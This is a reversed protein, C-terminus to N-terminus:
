KANADRYLKQAADLRRMLENALRRVNPELLLNQQHGPIECIELSGDLVTKWGLFEDAVLGQLQKSARFLVADGRYSRPRYKQLAKGHEIRLAEFVYLKPLTSLDESRRGTVSDLGIAVHARTMDWAHRFRKVLYGDPNHARNERELDVRKTMRYWWRKLRPVSARFRFAEPHMSQILTVLAVKQGAAELQQAVELALLGGFCFGGVFYPGEPQFNRLETIYAAAMSELTLDQPIHGDLGRAQLAYVPQDPDLFNALAHYELVNGGHAHMLFLPPRSGSTRLPVLASWSPKWNEKRLTEALEAVTPAHLLTALPLHINTLKEIEVIVRVALLSHGGLEFFNDRLGVRKVRLVREWIRALAQETADRPEIFDTKTLAEPVPIPLAKRDVKGNPTLPLKDMRVFISPIMFKPLDKELCARLATATIEGGPQPEYYAVLQRDGTTDERAIVACDHVSAHSNLSAEIEGLEIRFARLKVQSDARGLCQLTGDPLWRALDGTRYLLSSANFPNPVFRERTLKEQHLYGRALGKGGIYLEGINGVPVLNCTKDLVYVQTNDIPKGIRIRDDGPLVRHVTSWITTETPGYMNWLEACRSLLEQALDPVLAEGGCLVKLAKSGQWGAQILARWTAPTAQMVTCATGAIKEALLQPDQAERHSAIIVKGGSILPLYIELGAIDFSLTTVALLSDNAVFGPKRQVSLLFNTLASHQVEVGKPKGTSGSTYLVYALDTQNVSWDPPEPSLKDIEDWDSDLCVVTTPRVPLGQETKRDSILVKMGSDQVMFALRNRPFSPDLPVYAAGAKLIGLVAIVMDASREISLGILTGPGAGQQRLYRALRNVRTELEAYSLRQNQFEVAVSTPTRLAQEHILEHVCLDSGPLEVATNNWSALLQECDTEALMPLTSVSQDPNSLAADVLTVYYRCFRQITEREFLDTSYEILGQLGDATESIFLTLDFKSTGTQLRHKGSVKSVESIGDPDHLIFMLQFLPTHSSDREPAIEAVLQKFPLDAHAYAGLARDRVQRLLTRFSTTASLQTRLIISNLFCGILNETELQTRGSIPTGVLIDDQGSYRHVLAAFAAHLTMFLTAHEQSALSRLPEVINRPIDFLETAGRFTQTAPRTKDSPLELLSPAGALEKKWYTLQEQLVDGQLWTKQWCAFDAFQVPLVPLKPLRSELIACYIEWLEKHLLEMAWEDAVIHHIVLLVQHERASWHIVTARLLPASSLNFPKRGEEQVVRRWEREQDASALSSLDVDSIRVDASPLVTQAPENGRFCFATRLIEHRLVLEHIAQQFAEKRYTTGLPILDVINYVPSEPALQHLFWLQEQSSTLPCLGNQSRREIRHVNKDASANRLRNGLEAITSHEFIVQAPLDVGFVDRIRSATKIALLSHGGLEFFNDNVSVQELKLLEMWISTLVRETENRPGVFAEFRQRTKHSVTPLAKRNIKGNATLPFKELLVFAAPVMYQPLSERLDYRLRAPTLIEGKSGTDAAANLIRTQPQRVLRAAEGSRVAYLYAPGAVGPVSNDVLVRFKHQELITTVERVRRQDSLRVVVQRLKTWDDPSLGHLVDIESGDIAVRLLDVREVQAASIIESLTLRRDRGQGTPQQPKTECAQGLEGSFRDGPTRSQPHLTRTTPGDLSGSLARFFAEETSETEHAVEFPLCEVAPFWAKANATLCGLAESNPELCLIRLNKHLRSLFCAFLGINAGVDLICNGDQLEIGNRTYTQEVFIENYLRETATTDVQAIASGDPLWYLHNVEWLPQDLCHPIVYAVLQKNGSADESAVVLADRVGPSQRLVSAIEGLEIRYGHIKVQDDIRGCFELNGDPLCRALDGTRYMRVNDQQFPGPVFKQATLDPRNLYGRTVGAGTICLEGETGVPVPQGTEDLLHVSSNPLPKGLPLTGSQTHPLHASVHYTLVGVTTETPGYHNYIECHPSLTQLRQIWDLRSSEGGLILRKRPMVREPNRGSQLASLHSPVIKLVDIQHRDFYESLLSQSEARKQSIVHLCGGTTLAPFIVTNGLDAAITSVTAYSMGPELQLAAAVGITYNVINRHEIGVGKPRGTSGSTYIVYALNDPTVLVSDGAEEFDSRDMSDVCIVEVTEPNINGVLGAQTVLLKAGADDLMFGIREKPYSPDIPLYAAGAKLIGLLGVVLDLSRETLLGVVSDPRAGLKRLRRSLQDARWSLDHYTLSEGEFVVAVQDPTRQAQEEILQNLCLKERGHGTESGQEKIEVIQSPESFSLAPASCRSDDSLMIREVYDGTSTDHPM